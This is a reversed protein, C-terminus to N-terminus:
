LPKDVLKLQPYKELVKILNKGNDESWWQDRQSPLCGDFIPENLYIEIPISGIKRMTRDKSYGNSESNIAREDKLEQIVQPPVYEPLKDGILEGKKNFGKMVIGM